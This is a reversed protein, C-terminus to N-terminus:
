AVATKILYGASASVLNMDYYHNGVRVYTGKRDEENTGRLKETQRTKWQYTLGLTIMKQGLRHNIYGLIANKGWIYSMSDSQGEKATNKGAAAVIVRDVGVLSALLDPGVVGKQVYKIRELFAPHHKLKDWVQKGLILVNPDVYISSHITQKGTEIDDIPDSNSYDSWQDTGSLTVNQTMQATDTLMTALTNEREVMHMETVNETADVMPDMPPVANDVDEDPVFQKLAHDECFYPNGTTLSLTVEKSAAGTGRLNDNIRFRGKDYVFHKGSQKAVPLTPFLQEAIYADNQYGISVNTLVPDVGLYRNTSSM